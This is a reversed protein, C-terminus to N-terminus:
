SKALLLVSSVGGFGTNLSLAHDARPERGRELVLDLPCDGDPGLHGANVPLENHRLALACVVLEVLGSAELCHGHLAKTSSVPVQAGYPALARLVAAAEGADFAPTATAHANVYGVRDPGVGARRLAATIAAAPGAGEPHPRCVHHAEAANGWGAVRLWPRVAGAREVVVAAAGDGLVPGDRGASFPRAVGDPALIGADDFAAFMSADVFSAGAVVVRDETRDTVLQAAEAVASSAAACAATHVTRVERLGCAAALRTARDATDAGAHVALVLPAQRREAPSLRAQDCADDILRALEAFTDPTGPVTCADHARHRATDFRTVASTAPKQSLLGDWLAEPGSGYATLVSLGTVRAM